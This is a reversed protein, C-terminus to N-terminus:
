DVIEIYTPFLPEIKVGDEEAWFKLQHYGSNLPLFSINITISEGTAIEPLRIRQAVPQIAGGDFVLELNKRTEKLNTIRLPVTTTKLAKTTVPPLLMAMGFSPADMEAIWVTTYALEKIRWTIKFNLTINSLTAAGLETLPILSFVASLSENDVVECKCNCPKDIKINSKFDKGNHPPRTDFDIDASEIYLKDIGQVKFLAEIKFLTILSLSTAHSEVTVNFPSISRMDIKAIPAKKRPTYVELSFPANMTIPIKVSLPYIAEGSPLHFPVMSPFQHLANTDIIDLFYEANVLETSSATTLTSRRSKVQKKKLFVSFTLTDLQLISASTRIIFFLTEGPVVWNRTECNDIDNLCNQLNVPIIIKFNISQIISPDINYRKM